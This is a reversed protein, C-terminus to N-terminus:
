ILKGRGYSRQENPGQGGMGQGDPYKLTSALSEMPSMQFDHTIVQELSMNMDRESSTNSRSPPASSTNPFLALGAHAFQTQQDPMFDEEAIFNDPSAFDHPRRSSRSRAPLNGSIFSDRASSPGGIVSDDAYRTLSLVSGPRPGNGELEQNRLELDLYRHQLQSYQKKLQQVKNQSAALASDIMQQISNPIPQNGLGSMSGNGGVAQAVNRVSAELQFIKQEYKIRMREREADSSNLKLRSTELESQLVHHTEQSRAFELDRHEYERLKVSMEYLKSRIDSMEELDIQLTGLETRSDNERQESEVIMNKLEECEKRAQTLEHRLRENELQWQKEEEKLSKLKATLQDEYKKAQSRSATVEKKLQEYREDFKSLRAKLARNKNMLTQTDAEVSIDSMNKRQLHGIQELYKQKQFKEFTLENKLLMLERQLIASNYLEGGPLDPSPIPFRSLVQAFSQLKPITNVPTTSASRSPSPPASPTTRRLPPPVMDTPSEALEETYGKSHPSGNRSQRSFHDLLSPHSLQRPPPKLDLPYIASSPTTLTTSHDSSRPRHDEVPSIALGLTDEDGAPIAARSPQKKLKKPLAPLKATPPPGPDNLSFSVAICLGLCESVLEAPDSKVWRNDTLEDEPTTTFFNSHLKHQSRHRETRSRILNQHLDLQDSKAHGKMKLYRRPKRIFTMFNLPFLGYLFTFLYNAKPALFQEAESSEIPDWSPDPDLTLKAEPDSGQDSESQEGLNPRDSRKTYQDWCLIRAYIVFLTPLDAVLTSTIHPIFMILITLALDVVTSSNDVLLCTHLHKIVMTELVLHLHPPQLRVFSSLLSLAQLRLDKVVFVEDIALLLEKPKKRGFAVLIGELELAIFEDEPSVVDDGSPIKTRALYADLLKQTFQASIRAKEGSGNDEPDFDLIGLLFDKADEVTDRRQGIADVTPRIVLTWWQDLRTEGTILPRLLRLIAVFPGQKDANGIVYRNYISVLEDHLRQSDADEISQQAHVFQELAQEFEEPIPYSLAPDAFKSNIAKLLDKLSRYLLM